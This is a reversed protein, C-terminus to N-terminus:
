KPLTEMELKDDIQKKIEYYHMCSSHWDSPIGGKEINHMCCISGNSGRHMAPKNCGKIECKGWDSM